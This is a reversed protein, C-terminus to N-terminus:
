WTVQGDARPGIGALAAPDLPDAPTHSIRPHFPRDDQEGPGLLDEHLKEGTRLGTFVIRIDRGSMEIMREAIDLIRVPEGMDLILVEGLRGIAGAQVVLQCAESISMFYRTVNRDTITLPGGANIMQRFLPVMSGRSGLVNGFRVSLYSHESKRAAWAVLREGLRKSKGLASTPNAAKDTSINVFTEVEAALAAELVNSTGLVNTKWAEGPYRELPSLHKLAAAHFVVEPRLDDFLQIITERDRVDALVLDDGEFLGRGILSVQTAQLGTEDHDLLIIRDPRYKAVQRALEGGISGGAGTVLVRKGTLYGAITEVRTDIPTRGILDDISIDRLDGLRSLGDLSAEFPPLVLVTLGAPRALDTIRRLLGSDAHAIAVVLVKADTNEAVDALDDGTGLVRVGSHWTKSRQPHDDILGVPRYPSTADTLMRRVLLSGMYGAGYILAPAAHEGPQRSREIILRKLYRVAMMIFIAIPAALV